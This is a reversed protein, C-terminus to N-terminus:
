NIKYIFNFFNVLLIIYKEIIEDGLNNKISYYHDGAGGGLELVTIKKKFSLIPVWLLFRVRSRKRVM